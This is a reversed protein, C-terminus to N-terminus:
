PRHEKALYDHSQMELLRSVTREFEFSLKGGMYLDHLAVEASLVLKVNRDYFEDVMNIFRRAQDDTDRGMCPVNSVLVAHYIRALEIYDNQSRPGDCLESFEFWVVDDACYRSALVRNNIEIDREAVGPEPALSDFSTKLSIDAEKDLPFHYLEAQELARVRALYTSLRDNLGRMTPKEETWMGSIGGGGGGGGGYGGGGASFSMSSSSFSASSRGAPVLAMSAGGGRGGGFGGGGGGGGGGGLSYSSSIMGGGGSRSTQQWSSGSVNGLLIDASSLINGTGRSM